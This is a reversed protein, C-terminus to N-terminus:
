LAGVVGVGVGVAAAIWEAGMTPAGGIVVTKTIGVEGKLTGMGVEGKGPSPAQTVFEPFNFTVTRPVWTQKTGGIWTEIWQM